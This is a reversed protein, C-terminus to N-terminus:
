VVHGLFRNQTYIYGCSSSIEWWVDVIGDGIGDVIGDGIWISFIITTM